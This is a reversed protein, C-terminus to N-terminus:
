IVGSLVSLISKKKIYELTKDEEGGSKRLQNEEKSVFVFAM